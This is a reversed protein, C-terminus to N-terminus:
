GSSTTGATERPPPPGGLACYQSPAEEPAPKEPKRILAFAIIGGAACLIAAYIMARRFGAEFEAPIAYADGGIGAVVPLVAVALLGAARAVANNVGSAIGSREEPAAGLVTATLPAVTLTIGASYVLLPPLIDTLYSDGRGVGALLALGCAALLPGLTMPLRPGIRQALQGARASFVLMILTFPLLSVGAALPSLGVVTQLEIGLLFFAGSLAAYVAFTVLNAASFLRSAFLSLPLMPHRSRVEVVLFAAAAAVGAVGAIVTGPPYGRAPGDILFYTIGGLAAAALVAGTYDIPQAAPDRTEPVHRLAIWITAAALPLNILFILRWSGQEVLWGGLFPGIATSIGGLGSWAGIAAPRDERRFSAEIIALSGPTMLAGGIGQLARAAILTGANPAVGCLASAVAFWAVGVVFVRRRGLRDGLAGGLLILSALTLMYGNVTWQLAAVDANLAEGIRPLAVTIITGDLFAMGSGLVTAALVWRGAPERFRLGAEAPTVAM